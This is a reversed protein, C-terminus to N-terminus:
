RGGLEKYAKFAGDALEHHPYSKFIKGYLAAASSKAGSYREHHAQSSLVYPEWLLRNNGVTYNKLLIGYAQKFKNNDRSYLSRAASTIREDNMYHNPWLSYVDLWLAPDFPNNRDGLRRHGEYIQGVIGYIGRQEPLAHNNPRPINKTKYPIGSRYNPQRKRSERVLKVLRAKARELYAAPENMLLVYDVMDEVTHAYLYNGYGGSMDAGVRDVPQLGVTGQYLGRSWKSLHQLMGAGSAGIEYKAHRKAIEDLLKVAESTKGMRGYTGALSIRIRDAEDWQEYRNALKNLLEIEKDKKNTVVVWRYAEATLSRYAPNSINEGLLRLMEEAAEDWQEQGELRRPYWALIHTGVVGGGVSNAAERIHKRAEDLRDQAALNGAVAFVYSDWRASDRFREYLRKYAPMAEAPKAVGSYAAGAKNLRDEASNNYPAKEAFLLWLEGAMEPRGAKDLADALEVAAAAGLPSSPFEAILRDIRRRAADINSEKAFSQYEEFIIQAQAAASDKAPEQGMAKTAEDAKPSAPWATVFEARLANSADGFRELNPYVIDAVTPHGKYTQMVQRLVAAADEAREAKFLNNMSRLSRYLSTRTEPLLTVIQNNVQNAADVNGQKLQLDHVKDLLSLKQSPWRPQEALRTLIDIASDIRGNEAELEAFRERHRDLVFVNYTSMASGLAKSAEEPNKQGVLISPKIELAAYAGYESRARDRILEDTLKMAEDYLEGAVLHRIQLLRLVPYAPMESPITDAAQGWVKAVNEHDKRGGAGRQIMNIVTGLSEDRVEALVHSQLADADETRNEALLNDLLYQIATMFNAQAWYRNLYEETVKIREERPVKSDRGNARQVAGWYVGLAHQSNPFRQMFAKELQESKAPDVSRYINIANAWAEPVLDSTSYNRVLSEYLEAAEKSRGTQSQSKADSFITRAKQSPTQPAPAAEQAMSSAAMVVAALAAVGMVIWSSRLRKM